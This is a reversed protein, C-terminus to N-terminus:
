AARRRRRRVLVAGVAAGIALSAPAGGDGASCCSKPPPTVVLGGDTEPPGDVMTACSTPDATIGLQQKLACWMPVCEDRQPTGVACDVPGQIDQFRLVKTWTSLDTTKMIGADDSPVQQAGYNQTCAWVEGASNEVLCGIHPAGALPEWTAGSDHSVFSGSSRTGVVLDGSARAVFAIQDQEERIKTWTAGGDLTRFVADSVANELQYSVRVYVHDVSQQSIGVIDIQSNNTTTLGTLSMPAYSAGGNTSKFLLFTRGSGVLRYGALYVRTPDTPAVELSNWWDGVQGPTPAVPFTLGDDASRYIASDGPDAVTPNAPQAAAAYLAGDGGLEITSIFKEGHVTADFTCGNRNVLTGVFTTAFVAGTPSYLYDPDYVGGYKVANECMWQWTAGGDHSVVLGFTMGAVIHQENGQRFNITSTAPPRGNALAGTATALLLSSVVALQRVM